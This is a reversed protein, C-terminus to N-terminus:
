KMNIDTEVSGNHGKEKRLRWIFYLNKVYYEIKLFISFLNFSTIFSEGVHIDLIVLFFGLHALHKSKELLWLLRFGKQYKHLPPWFGVEFFQGTYESSSFRRFLANLHPQQLPRMLATHFINFKCSLVTSITSSCHFSSSLM